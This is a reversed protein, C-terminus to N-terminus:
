TRSYLYAVIQRAQDRSVGLDPMITGPEISRPHEIWRIANEPTNPIEGAIFRLRRFGSLSPGVRGNAGQIGPISHCSGCGFKDILRAGQSPSGGAVLAPSKATGCGAALVALVLFPVLRRV